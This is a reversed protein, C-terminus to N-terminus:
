GSTEPAAAAPPEAEERDRFIRTGGSASSPWWVKDGILEIAAPLM